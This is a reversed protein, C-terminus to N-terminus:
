DGTEPQTTNSHDVQAPQASHATGSVIQDFDRRVADPAIERRNELRSYVATGLNMLRAMQGVSLGADIRRDRWTEQGAAGARIEDAKAKCDKCQFMRRWEHPKNGYNIHAACSNGIEAEKIERGCHIESLM